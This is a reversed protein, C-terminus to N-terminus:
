YQIKREIDIGTLEAREGRTPLSIATGTQYPFTLIKTGDGYSM